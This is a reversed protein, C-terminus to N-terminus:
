HILAGRIEPHTNTQFAIAPERSPTTRSARSCRRAVAHFNPRNAALPTDRLFPFSSNLATESVPFHVVGCRALKKRM